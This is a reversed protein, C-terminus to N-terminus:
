MYGRVGVYGSTELGSFPIKIRNQPSNPRYTLFLVFSSLAAAARRDKWNLIQLDAGADREPRLLM